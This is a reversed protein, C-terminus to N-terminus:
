RRKGYHRLKISIFHYISLIITGVTMLVHLISFFILYSEVDPILDFCSDAYNIIPMIILYAYCLRNYVCHYKSNSLSILFLAGAYIISNSHLLYVNSLDYGLWCMILDVGSVIFLIIPLFRVIYIDAGRLM